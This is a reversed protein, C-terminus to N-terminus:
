IFDKLYLEELNKIEKRMDYDTIDGYSDINGKPELLASIWKEQPDELSLSTINPSQYVEKPVNDSIVCPLGAAQAEILVIGFGEFRSPLVFVDMAQLLEPVDDRGVLIKVKGSLGLNKVLERLKTEDQGRGVLILYVNDKRKQIENFINITFEPNKQYAFRSVQGIVYADEPISLEERIEQRSKKPNTFREFDIGNKIVAVNDIDFMDEIEKAMGEHLAIIQLDNNDLLYRCADREAPREDGILKQPPNHCTFLLKIGDLHKRAYYLVELLELHAHIVDPKLEKLAKEFLLAVYRKGFLRALVKNIFFSKEYMTLIRVNNDKLIKYNNSEPRYDECLITVDFKDKDLMLAYDRVLTEAGGDQIRGIFEVLKIKKM